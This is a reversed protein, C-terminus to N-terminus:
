LCFLSEYCFKVSSERSGQSDLNCLPLKPNMDFGERLVQNRLSETMSIVLKTGNFYGM